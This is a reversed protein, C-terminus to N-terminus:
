RNYVRAAGKARGLRCSGCRFTLRQRADACLDARRQSGAHRPDRRGSREGAQRDSSRAVYRDRGKEMRYEQLALVRGPIRGRFGRPIREARPCVGAWSCSRGHSGFQLMDPGIEALIVAARRDREGRAGDAVFRIAVTIYSVAEGGIARQSYRRRITRAGTPASDGRGSRRTYSPQRAAM